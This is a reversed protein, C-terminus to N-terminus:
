VEGGYALSTRFISSEEVRIACEDGVFSECRLAFYIKMCKDRTFCLEPFDKTLNGRSVLDCLVCSCFGVGAEVALGEGPELVWWLWLVM